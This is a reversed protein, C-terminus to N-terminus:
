SSLVFQKRTVTVAGLVLLVGATVQLRFMADDAPILYPELSEFLGDRFPGICRWAGLQVNWSTVADLSTERDETQLSARLEALEQLCEQTAKAPELDAAYSPTRIPLAADSLVRRPM